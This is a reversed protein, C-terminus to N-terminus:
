MVSTYKMGEAAFGSNVGVFCVTNLFQAHLISMCQIRNFFFDEFYFISNRGFNDTKIYLSM